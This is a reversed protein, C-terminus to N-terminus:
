ALAMKEEIAARGAYRLEAAVDPRMLSTRVHGKPKLLVVSAPGDLFRLDNEDGDVFTALGDGIELWTGTLVDKVAEPVVVAVSQADRLYDVARGMDAAGEVSYTLHYNPPRTHRHTLPIKTYDMFQVHPFQTFLEPAVREWMIDSTGNLRVVPRMGERAALEALRRIDRAIAGIFATRDSLFLDTRRQKAGMARPLGSLGSGSLCMERCAPTSHPCLTVSGGSSHPMLYLIATLYGLAEGKLTKGNSMTMLKLADRYKFGLAGKELHIPRRTTM